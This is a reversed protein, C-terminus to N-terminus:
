DKPNVETGIRSPEPTGMPALSIKASIFSLSPTFCYVYSKQPRELNELLLKAQDIGTFDHLM